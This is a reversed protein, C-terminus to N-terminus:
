FLPVNNRGVVQLEDGGMIDEVYEKIKMASDILQPSEVLKIIKLSCIDGFSPPIEELMCCRWLELKELVPFSEQGVEWKFLTVEDLELFKLNEFTDEETMNWEGGHIITNELSLGELNSLRALTSLSDPTLPFKGLSLIKLSSPFHFNCLWNTGVSPESDNSSEFEVSLRKLETLFDLKPFWHRKTSCDRSEKLVFVLIRLNPFRKFIDEADKSYSLVLNELYRLNELKTDEAILIPEDTDMDLFSCSTMHLIRLKVLDWIRPLLVLTSGKNYVSLIELNRLNSFSSPLSKVETGIRLFRLHVLMCIENLLSDKVKFTHDLKLVRLLRLHRLHCTDSLGGDLNDANIRLSYLHKGSHRKKNSGFLVFNELGFFESKCDITVIRPMLDSSSSPASSSIRDFLMEKRAKILCFDHVLDHLQCTLYEGIENFIIVLSSSILNDLCVKMVEEESKMETQEVLGEAHWLDILGSIIMGTDKSYSAIYLLCLKVQDSLHDYSLEIVKMVEVESNLIFSNLSNRVELWVAKKKERGAIVGAILDAVLPLGKCNKAIEIGVDLLEDPCSENGFARKELLEWSEEPKLLRLDLLDTNRKGQLAVKKERTTLIIRSGKEVEPFPRTLEDWKSTDWVDDLVILYRKGYLQKRLKDAVDINESLKSDSGNVQNFIKNLLNKEDYEQGVTCWARLDFHSSISKDNYVKYALTTKGAGPMGTISIVDLDASGRTLKEIIWITEVEFGVIIKGAPLSKSEVLKKPSNVVLLGGNKPIKERLDSVQEKILKIKMITIPLSFILHLLGNDRVIISDIVDKAEYAVDLVRAWLDKYWEQEINVFFSRISELDEKVLRIEEKILAISYANSNLLDDLHMHLLHMFLPGDSMPFCCQSSNPVTLYVHKLDEKLLEINELLDLTACNTKDTSEKNRLKEVLDHVLTSVERTLAGVRALLDFLKDHHIFDRPMDSLIILLFEIMVHINQAGSTTTTTVNIMHEQLHILYERLIDPCIELLKKIFHGVEASTSAKLNTFCINVVELEIPIIKMLLHALKFLRSEGDIQDDWLFRGVREAMLQFQPLVYEVIEHEICGNVILGHFDKMNGCVNHLIEYQTQETLYKSLHHLNLLLFDMQEETMTASSTSRNQSSIFYDINDRLRTLVHHINYKIVVNFEVDCLISRLINKVEQRQVSMLEDFQELDSYSLQIYTCIFAMGFKLNEIQDVMEVTKKDEENKLREMFDLVNVVDKYLASFSEVSNNAEGKERGGENDM